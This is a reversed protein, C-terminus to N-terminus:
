YACDHQIIKQVTTQTHSSCLYRCSNSEDKTRSPSARHGRTRHNHICVPASSLQTSLRRIKGQLKLHDDFIRACGRVRSQQPPPASSPLMGTDQSVSSGGAPPSCSHLACISFSMGTENLPLDQGHSPEKSAGGLPSSDGRTNVADGRM